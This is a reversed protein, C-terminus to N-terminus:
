NYEWFSRGKVVIEPLKLHEDVVDVFLSAGAKFRRGVLARSDHSMRYLLAVVHRMPMHEIEHEDCWFRFVFVLHGYPITSLPDVVTCDALFDDVVTLKAM